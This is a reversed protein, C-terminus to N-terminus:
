AAMGKQMMATMRRIFDQPDVVPEGEVIRAQDLLLYAADDLSKDSADAKAVNALHKILAHKPNIELVRPSAADIQNHAKLLKELHMDMDGDDAVLCVPSDTLRSSTRVDKVKDGLALKFAATLAAIAGSTDEKTDADSEKKEDDDGGAIKSLDVGGRTASKFPKEEFAGVAPMWFEDVPDTMFLVEVGKARFGELQPSKAAQEADGASIYYIADQGEKMREVYEKLSTWGDVMSSKFRTLEMLRDRNEFDEHIGEKLVMGFTDWFEAYEEPKKDAKKKLEGLVRKILAKRIKAVAPNHQLMERSVNLDIDESDVIGKVFRLYGPILADCDDTIFVRNVYLKLQGKREPHFLDFPRSSPIFLLNTYSIVGEAKNHLTLWPEDFAMGVHHYFENYQEETIDKRDRTWLASASNLTKDADDEKAAKLVVPQAIHDSYTKVVNEIRVAELFEKDDKKIHVIVDTGHSDREADEIEFAGHGDSTWRWAKDEGAKRSVVEVKDAVMFSSYFGVGFQGILAMKADEGGSQAEKLGEMFAQTGSKAITGLADIMDDKSMGIGNDSVTLTKAKEDLRITIEFGDATMLDPETLSRYRLKDCADSANSILERLFVEKQSYLSHAVIDLIKGVEAQFSYTEKSM